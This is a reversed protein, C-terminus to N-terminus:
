VPSTVRSNAEEQERVIRWLPLLLLRYFMYGAVSLAYIVGGVLPGPERHFVIDLANLIMAFAVLAGLGQLLLFILQSSKKEIAGRMNRASTYAGSLTFAAGVLSSATWLIKGNVGFASLCLCFGCALGAMLSYQVVVTLATVPGRRVRTVDAVQYTAIVVAFGALAISVEVGILLLDFAYM